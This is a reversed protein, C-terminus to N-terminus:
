AAIVNGGMRSMVNFGKNVAATDTPVDAVEIPSNQSAANPPVPSSQVM